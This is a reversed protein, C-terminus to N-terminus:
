KGSPEELMIEALKIFRSLQDSSMQMVIDLAAKQGDSLEVGELTPSIKNQTTGLISDVSVGFYDAIKQATDGNITRDPDNKLKTILSRSLGLDTCMKGKSVKPRHNQCLMEINNLIVNEHFTGLFFCEKKHM